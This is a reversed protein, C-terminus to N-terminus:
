DSDLTYTIEAAIIISKIMISCLNSKYGLIKICSHDSYLM